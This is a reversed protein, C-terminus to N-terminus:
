DHHGGEHPADTQALSELVTELNGPETDFLSEKALANLARSVAATMNAARQASAESLKRGLTHEVVANVHDHKLRAM